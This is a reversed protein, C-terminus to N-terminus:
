IKIKFNVDVSPIFINMSCLENEDSKDDCDEIGDCLMHRPLCKGNLCQFSSTDCETFKFYLM